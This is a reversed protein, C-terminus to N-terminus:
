YRFTVDGNEHIKIAPVADVVKVDKMGPTVGKTNADLKFNLIVDKDPKHFFLIQATSISNRYFDQVM